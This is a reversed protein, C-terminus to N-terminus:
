ILTPQIKEEFIEAIEKMMSIERDAEIGPMKNEIVLRKYVRRRYAWERFACAALEEDSHKRKM